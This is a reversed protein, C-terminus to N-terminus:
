EVGDFNSTDVHLQGKLNTKIVDKFRKNWIFDEPWYTHRAYIHQSLTEDVGTMNVVVQAEMKELSEVTCPFLPSEEDIVHMVTWSLAFLPSRSRIPKLDVIRRYTEGKKTLDTRVLALGVTAESVTNQRENALRFVLCLKGDQKNILCNKTFLVRAQPRAFRAYVVGTGIAMSLLGLGAEATTIFNAALSQPAVHGYGITALTQVSFFFCPLLRDLLNQSTVGELGGPGLVAFLFGFVLNIVIFTVAYFLLFRPWSVSLMTHYFDRILLTRSRPAIVPSGDARKNRHPPSQTM